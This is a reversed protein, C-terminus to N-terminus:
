VEIRKGCEGNKASPSEQLAVPRPWGSTATQSVAARHVMEPSRSIRTPRSEGGIAALVHVGFLQSNDAVDFLVSEVFIYRVLNLTAALALVGHPLGAQYDLGGTSGIFCLERRLDFKQMANPDLDVQQAAHSRELLHARFGHRCGRSVVFKSPNNQWAPM